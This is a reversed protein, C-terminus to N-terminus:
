AAEHPSLAPLILSVELGRSANRLMVKGDHYEAIRRVLWLGVGHNLKDSKSTVNPSFVRDAQGDIGGGTDRIRIEVHDALQEGDIEIRHSADELEGWSQRLIAERANKLVNTLALELLVANGQVTLQPPLSMLIPIQGKPFQSVASEIVTRLNVPDVFAGDHRFVDHLGRIVRRARRASDRIRDAKDGIAEALATDASSDALLAPLTEATFGITSLLQGLEHTLAASFMENPDHDVDQERISAVAYGLGTRVASDDPGPLAFRLRDKVWVYGGDTTYARYTARFEGTSQFTRLAEHVVDVDDFHVLRPWPKSSLFIPTPDGLRNRMESLVYYPRIGATPSVTMAYIAILRQHVHKGGSM